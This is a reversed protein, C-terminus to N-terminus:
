NRVKLIHLISETVKSDMVIEEIGTEMDKIKLTQSNLEEDGFILAVKANAQNAKKMRNKLTNNYEYKVYLGNKRLKDALKLSYNEAQNGIPVLYIPREEERSYLFLETIREIGGAFGVAPTFEGGMSSVLNDYRGGAFVAGQAGLDNTIFEFVTHCYYDLGRVLNTNVVYPINLITLENLVQDFFIASQKTYYESIKPADSIILLDKKNKSDLIRLPNRILRNKSEESLDNEYKELYSLLSRKYNTITESDGLSNIELKVRDSIGIEDVLHQGLSILEIDAQFNKIGFIEFNIQHFQRQRGRQPREYRFVPGTSFLRAPLQLKKELFLRVIAATFEPRLTISKGNKDEFSYMEKTIIDSSDGLTKTFVETYEFIPTDIPVFGYLNSINNAIHQIYRLKYWEESLLDKTGRVAQNIM